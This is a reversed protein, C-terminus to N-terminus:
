HSEMGQFVRGLFVRVNDGIVIIMIFDECSRWVWLWEDVYRIM